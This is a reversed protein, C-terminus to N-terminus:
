IFLALAAATLLFGPLYLYLKIFSFESTETHPTIRFLIWSILTILYLSPMIMLPNIEMVFFIVPGATFLLILEATRAARFQFDKGSFM